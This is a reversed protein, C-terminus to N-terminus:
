MRTPMPVNQAKDIGYEMMEVPYALPPFIWIPWRFPQNLRVNQTRSKPELRFEPNIGYIQARAILFFVM